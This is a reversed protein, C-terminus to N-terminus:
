HFMWNFFSNAVRHAFGDPQVISARRFGVFAIAHEVSIGLYTKQIVGQLDPYYGYVRLCGCVEGPKCYIPRCQVHGIQWRERLVRYMKIEGCLTCNLVSERWNILEQSEKYELILDKIEPPLLDWYSEVINLLKLKIERDM